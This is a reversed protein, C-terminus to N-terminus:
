YSFFSVLRHYTNGCISCMHPDPNHVNTKHSRLTHCCHFTKNCNEFDCVFPEVHLHEKNIHGQMRCNTVMKGCTECARKLEAWYIKNGKATYVPPDNKNLKHKFKPEPKQEGKPRRVYKRKQRKPTIESSGELKEKKIDCKSEVESADSEELKLDFSESEKDSSESESESTDNLHALINTEKLDDLNGGNEETYDFEELELKPEVLVEEFEVKPVLSKNSQLTFDLVFENIDTNTNLIKFIPLKSSQPKSPDCNLLFSTTLIEQNIICSMRFSLFAEIKKICMLCFVHSLNDDIKIQFLLFYLKCDFRQM